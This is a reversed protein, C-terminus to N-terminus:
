CFATKEAVRQAGRPTRARPPTRVGGHAPAAGTSQESREAGPEKPSRCPVKPRKSRSTARGDKPSPRARRPRDGRGPREVNSSRGGVDRGDPTPRRVDCITSSAGPWESGARAHRATARGSWTEENSERGHNQYEADRRVACPGVDRGRNEAPLWPGLARAQSASERSQDGCDSSEVQRSASGGVQNLDDLRGTALDCSTAGCAVDAM